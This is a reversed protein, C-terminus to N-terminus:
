LSLIHTGLKLKTERSQMYGFGVSPCYDAMYEDCALYCNKMM